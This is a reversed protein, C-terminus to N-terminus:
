RDARVQLYQIVLKNIQEDTLSHSRLIAVYEGVECSLKAFMKFGLKFNEIAKLDEDTIL